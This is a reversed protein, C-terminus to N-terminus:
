RSNFVGPALFAAMIPLIQEVVSKFLNFATMLRAVVPSIHPVGGIIKPCIIPSRIETIFRTFHNTPYIKFCQISCEFDDILGRINNSITWVVSVYFILLGAPLCNQLVVFLRM